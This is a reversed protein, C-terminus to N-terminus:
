CVSSLRKGRSLTFHVRGTLSRGWLPSNHQSAFSSREDLVWEEEPCFVTIDADDGPKLAGVPVGLVQQPGSSLARSVAVLDGGLASLVLPLTVSYGIAGPQADEIERDWLHEALPRHDSAVADITGDRLADVLAQRDHANGLPPVFRLAGSYPSLECSDPELGMHYATTSATIKAGGDKVQRLAQVGSASWLHTLHVRAGVARALAGVRHIGIVESEPLVGPLGLETARPGQRHVGGQELEADTGRLVVILDLRSAYELTRQLVTSSAIPATGQSVLVCGAKAMLGMEALAEGKLGATLAGPVWVRCHAQQAARSLWDRVAAPTDIVSPHEVSAVVTVFGGRAAASTDQSLSPLAGHLDVFGPTVVKGTCDLVEWEPGIEGAPPSVVIGDRVAVDRQSVSGALPDVVRGGRLLLSM